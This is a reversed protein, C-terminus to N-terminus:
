ATKTLANSFLVINEKFISHKGLPFSSSGSVLTVEMSLLGPAWTKTESRFLRVVCKAPDTEHPLVQLAGSATKKLTKVLVKNVVVGVIVDNLDAFIEDVLDIVIEIDEGTYVTESM